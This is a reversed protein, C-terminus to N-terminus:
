DKTIIVNIVSVVPSDLAKKIIADLDNENEVTMSVGGRFIETVKQYEWHRTTNIIFIIPNLKKDIITSIESFSTKFTTQSVVVIPRIGKGLQLGLAGPIAFGKNGFAAPCLFMECNKLHVAELLYKEEIDTIVGHNKALFGDIKQFLKKTTLGINSEIVEPILCPKERPIITTRFLNECFDVFQIDPFSHNKVQINGVDCRVVQGKKFKAPVFSLTVDTLVSGFMLLCDSEEITKKTITNSTEGHYVGVFLPHNERMASKSLLDTVFPINYKTAFELLKEGLNYRAVEVGALIVPNHSSNIWKSVEELAEELNQQDTDPSVPTGQKYVDYTLSKNATDLPLEIYIPQKFYHLAELAQDIKYGAEAPNDLVISACTINEFIKLQSRCLKGPSGSIVILFFREAYACAVASAVKLAGANYNVCVCGIGVIRAYVDAAAGAHCEDTNEIVIIKTKLKDFFDSICKGSVGFVHKVGNNQLREILFDTVNAM